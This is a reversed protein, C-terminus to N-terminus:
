DKFHDNIYDVLAMGTLERSSPGDRVFFQERSSKDAKFWIAKSSTKCKIDCIMKSDFCIMERDILLTVDPTIRDRILNGLHLQFKDASPFLDLEVGLATGDDKIGIVLEGGKTNCFAVITKLVTNEIEKDRKKTHLNVRLSSKFELVATEGLKIRSALDNKEIQSEIAGIRDRYIHEMEEHRAKLAEIEANKSELERRLVILQTKTSQGIMIDGLRYLENIPLVPVEISALSTVSLRPIYAGGTAKSAKDLFDRQGERTRLYSRIYDGSQSSRIIACSNNVVAQPDDSRFVYLKRKDFLTSVIVDGPQAIARQFSNRSLDDVYSDADTRVLVGDKINRGGLLLYKGHKKREEPKPTFGAIVDALEAIKKFKPVPRLLSLATGNPATRERHIGHESLWWLDLPPTKSELSVFIRDKLGDAGVDAVYLMVGDSVAICRVEEEAYRQAQALAQQVATENWTFSGLPKTEIVCFKVGLRTVVIDARGVHRGIDIQESIDDATWDLAITLLDKVILATKRESPIFGAHAYQNRRERRRVLFAPWSRQLRSEFQKQDADM